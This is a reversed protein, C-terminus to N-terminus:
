ANGLELRQEILYDIHGDGLPQTEMAAAKLAAAVAEEPLFGAAELRVYFNLGVKGATDWVQMGAWENDNVAEFLTM